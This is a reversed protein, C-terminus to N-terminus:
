DVAGRAHRRPDGGRGIAPGLVDGARVVGPRGELTRWLEDDPTRGQALVLTTIEGIEERPGLLRPAALPRRPTLELHHRIRVGALDLRALYLNRQYQHVDEGPM